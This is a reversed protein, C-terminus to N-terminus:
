PKSRQTRNRLVSATMASRGSMGPASFLGRGRWGPEIWVRRLVWGRGTFPFTAFGVERGFDNDLWLWAENRHHWGFNEPGLERPDEAAFAHDLEVVVRRLAQPIVQEGDLLYLSSSKLDDFPDSVM